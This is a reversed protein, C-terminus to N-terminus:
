VNGTPLTIGHAELVFKYRAIETDKVISCTELQRVRDRLEQIEAEMRKFESAVRADIVRGMDVEIRKEEVDNTDTKGRLNTWAQYAIGLVAVIGIVVQTWDM